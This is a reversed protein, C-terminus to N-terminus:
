NKKELIKLAKENLERLKIIAQTNEDIRKAMILVAGIVKKYKRM